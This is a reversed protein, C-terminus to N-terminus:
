PEFLAFTRVFFVFSVKKDVKLLMRSNRDEFSIIESKKVIFYKKTM